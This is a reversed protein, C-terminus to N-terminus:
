APHISVRSAAETVPADRLRSTVEAGDLFVRNGNGSSEVRISTAAALRDVAEADEPSIGPELAKLAFAPYMAATELNLLNFRRAIRSAVTSKGAGAPGDIAIIIRKPDTM